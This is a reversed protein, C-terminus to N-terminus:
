AAAVQLNVYVTTSFSVDGRLVLRDCRDSPCGISHDTEKRQLIKM